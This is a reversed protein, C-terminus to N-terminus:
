RRSSSRNRSGSALAARPRTPHARAGARAAIPRRRGRWRARTPRARPVRAHAAVEIGGDGSRHGSVWTSGSTGADTPSKAVTGSADPCDAAAARGTTRRARRCSTWTRGPPVPRTSAASSRGADGSPRRRRLVDPDEPPRGGRDDGVAVAGAPRSRDNPASGPQRRGTSSSGPRRAPRPSPGSSAPSRTVLRVPGRAPRAARRPTTGSPHRRRARPDTSYLGGRSPPRVSSRGAARRATRRRRRRTAGLDTHEEGLRGRHPLEQGHRRSPHQGVEGLEARRQAFVLVTTSSRSARARRSRRSRRGTAPSCRAHDRTAFRRCPGGVRASGTTTSRM